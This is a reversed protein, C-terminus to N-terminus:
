ITFNTLDPSEFIGFPETMTPLAYWGGYQSIKETEWEDAVPIDETMVVNNDSMGFVLRRTDKPTNKGLVLRFSLQDRIDTPITTALPKQMSLVLNIGASRGKLILNKLLADYQKKTEKDHLTMTFAALEDFFLVVPTMGAKYADMGIEKHYKSLYYQRTDLLENLYTLLRIVEDSEVAYHGKPLHEKSIAYLDALKPDITYIMTSDELLKFLYNILMSKGSGTTGTIIAHPEKSINWYVGNMLPIKNDEMYASSGDIQKSEASEFEIVLRKGHETNEFKLENQPSLRYKDPLHMRVIVRAKKLYHEDILKLEKRVDDQPEYVYVREDEFSVLINHFALDEKMFLSKLKNALISEPAQKTKFKDLFKM